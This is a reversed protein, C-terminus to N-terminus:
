VSGELQCVNKKLQALICMVCSKGNKLKCNLILDRGTTTCGIGLVREDEWVSVTCGGLEQKMWGRAVTMRCETKPLKVARPVECLQFRITTTEKHNIESLM